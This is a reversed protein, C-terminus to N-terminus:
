ARGTLSGIVFGLFVPVISLLMQEVADNISYVVGNVSRITWQQSQTEMLMTKVDTCTTNLGDTHTTLMTEMRRMNLMIGIFVILCPIAVLVCCVVAEQYVRQIKAKTTRELRDTEARMDATLKALDEKAVGATPGHFRMETTIRDELKSLDEKTASTTADFDRMVARVRAEIDDLDTRKQKRLANQVDFEFKELEFKLAAVIPRDTISLEMTM